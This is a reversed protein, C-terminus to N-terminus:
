CLVSFLLGFVFVVQLVIFIWCFDLLVVYYILVYGTLNNQFFFLFLLFELIVDVASVM